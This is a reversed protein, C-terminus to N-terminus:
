NLFNVTSLPIAGYPVGCIIDFDLNEKKILDSM